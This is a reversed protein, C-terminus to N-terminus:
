PWQTEICKLIIYNLNGGLQFKRGNEETIKAEREALRKALRNDESEYHSKEVAM